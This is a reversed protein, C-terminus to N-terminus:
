QEDRRTYKKIETITNQMETQSKRTNQLERNSVELKESQEDLRRGLEKFMKIIMAKFEKDPLNSTEIKSLQEEPSKDQEKRQFMNRQRRM